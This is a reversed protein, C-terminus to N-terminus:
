DETSTPALSLRVVGEARFGERGSVCGEVTMQEASLAVKGPNALQAGDLSLNGTIHALDLSFSPAHCQDLALHGGIEAATADLTRLVSGSLDLSRTRAEALLLGGGFCCDTLKAACGVVLPLDQGRVVEGVKVLDLLPQQCELVAVVCGRGREPPLEGGGVQILGSLSGPSVV